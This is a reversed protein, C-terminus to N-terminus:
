GPAGPGSSGLLEHVVALTEEVFFPKLLFRFNSGYKGRLEARHTPLGSMAIVPLRPNERHVASLVERGDVVPMMLDTIVLRVEAARRRFAALGEEGNRAAIVEYGFHGLLGCLSVLISEEDDIVLVLQGQGRPPPRQGAPEAAGAPTSASPLRSPSPM